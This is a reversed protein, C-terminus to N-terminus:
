KDQTFNIEAALIRGIVRIRGGKHRGTAPILKERERTIYLKYTGKLDTLDNAKIVLTTGEGSYLPESYAASLATSESHSLWMEEPSDNRFLQAYVKDKNKPGEKFVINLNETTKHSSRNKPSILIMQKPLSITTNIQESSDNIVWKVPYALTSYPDILGAYYCNREIDYIVPIEHSHKILFLRMKSPKKLVVPEGTKDGQFFCAQMKVCNMNKDGACSEEVFTTYDQYIGSNTENTVPTNISPAINQNTADGSSPIKDKSPSNECGLMLVVGSLGIYFCKLKKM